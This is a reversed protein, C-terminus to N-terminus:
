RSTPARAGWTWASCIPDGRGQRSAAGRARWRGARVHDPTGSTGRRKSRAAFGREVADAARHREAARFPNATRGRRPVPGGAAHGRREACRHENTRVRPSGAYRTRVRVRPRGATGAEALGHGPSRERSECVLEPLLGRGSRRRHRSANRLGSANGTDPETLIEGDATVRESVCLRREGRFSPCPKDQLLDYMDPRFHRGIELIDRFGETTLLAANGLKRELVANTVLTSGHVLLAVDDADVGALEIGREVAAVLAGAPDSRRSPVKAITVEGTEEELVTIDTFTGGIDVGLRVAGM